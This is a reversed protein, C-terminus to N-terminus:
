MECDSKELGMELETLLERKEPKTMTGDMKTTSYHVLVCIMPSFSNQASEVLEVIEISREFINRQQVAEKVAAKASKTRKNHLSALNHLNARNISKCLTTTKKEM